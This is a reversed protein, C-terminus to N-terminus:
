QTINAGANPAMSSNFQSLLDAQNNASAINSGMGGSQGGMAQQLQQMEDANPLILEEVNKIDFMRFLTTVFAKMNIFPLQGVLQLLQIFQQRNVNKLASIESGGCAYGFQGQMQARSINQWVPQKGTIQVEVESPMWEHIMQRVMEAIPILYLEEFIKVDFRTRMDANAALISGVTATEQRGLQGKQIDYWGASEDFQDNLMKYIQYADLGIPAMKFPVIDTAPDLAGIRQGPFSVIQNPDISGKRYVIWPNINLSMIDFMQNFLTNIALQIPENPKVIDMGFFRKPSYTKVGRVFPKRAFPFPNPIKYQAIHNQNLIVSIDDDTFRRWRQVLTETEPLMTPQGLRKRKEAEPMKWEEAFGKIKKIDVDYKGLKAQQEVFSLTIWDEVLVAEAKTEDEAYPHYPYINWPEIIEFTLGRYLETMLELYQIEKTPDDPSETMLPVKRVKKEVSWSPICGVTGYLNVAYASGVVVKFFRAMALYYEMVAEVSAKNNWGISNRPMCQFLPPSAYLGMVYRAVTTEILPFVKPVFISSRRKDRHIIKELSSNWMKYNRYWQQAEKQKFNWSEQYQNRVKSLFSDKADTAIRPM